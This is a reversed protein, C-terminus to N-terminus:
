PGVLTKRDCPRMRGLVEYIICQPSVFPFSLDFPLYISVHLECIKRWLLKSFSLKILLYKYTQFPLYLGSPSLPLYGMFTM